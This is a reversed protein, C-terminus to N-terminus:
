SATFAIGTAAAAQGSVFWSTGDSVVECWDGVAAAGDTFTITDENSAAVTAGNVVALGEIINAGANTVVTYSAGSPAAGIVFRYKLGRVPAPLTTAFETASSLIFTAGNEAATVTKTATVTEVVASVAQTTVTGGSNTEVKLKYNLNNTSDYCEIVDGVNLIGDLSDFYGSASVTAEADASTYTHIRLGAGRQDPYFGSLSYAM